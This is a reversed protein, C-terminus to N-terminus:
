FGFPLGGFSSGLGGLGFSGGFGPAGNNGRPGGSQPNGRLGPGAPGDFETGFGTPDDYRAGPPVGPIGASGAGRGGSGGRFIPHDMSPYMGGDGGDGRHDLFPRLEPNAPIGPPRLDGDGITPVGVRLGQEPRPLMEYEDDFDPMDAPRQRSSGEQVRFGLSPLKVNDTRIEDPQDDRRSEATGQEQQQKSCLTDVIANRQNELEKIFSERFKPDIDNVPVQLQLDNTLHIQISEHMDKAPHIFLITVHDPSQQVLNVTLVTEKGRTYLFQTFTPTEYISHKAGRGIDSIWDRVIATAIALATDYTMALPSSGTTSQFHCNACIPAGTSCISIDVQM